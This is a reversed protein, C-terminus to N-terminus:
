VFISSRTKNAGSSIDILVVASKGGLFQQGFKMCTAIAIVSGPQGWAGVGTIGSTYTYKKPVLNSIGFVSHILKGTDYELMHVGDSKQRFTGVWVYKGTDDVWAHDVGVNHGAATSKEWLDTGWRASSEVAVQGKGDSISTTVRLKYISSDGDDFTGKGTYLLFMDFSNGSVDKGIKFGHVAGMGDVHCINNGLIDKMVESELCSTPNNIDKVRCWWLCDPSPLPLSDDYFKWVSFFCFGSPHCEVTNVVRGVTRDVIEKPFITTCNHEDILDVGGQWYSAGGTPDPNWEFPNGEAVLLREPGGQYSPRVPFLTSPSAAYALLKMSASLTGQSLGIDDLRWIKDTLSGVVYLPPVYDEPKKMAPRFLPGHLFIGFDDRVLAHGSVSGLQTYKTMSADWAQVEFSNATFTVAEVADNSCNGSFCPTPKCVIKASVLSSSLGTLLAVARSPM